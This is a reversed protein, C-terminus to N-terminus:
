CIATERKGILTLAADVAHSATCRNAFLMGAVDLTGGRNIYGLACMNKPGGDLRRLVGLM